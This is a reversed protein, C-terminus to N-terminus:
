DYKIIPDGYQFDKFYILGQEEFEKLQQYLINYMALAVTAITTDNSEILKDIDFVSDQIVCGNAVEIFLTNSRPYIRIEYFLDYEYIPQTFKWYHICEIFGLAKMLKVTSFKARIGMNVGFKNFRMEKGEM